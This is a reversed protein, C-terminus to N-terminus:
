DFGTIGRMSDKEDCNFLTMGDYLHTRRKGAPRLEWDEPEVLWAAQGPNTKGWL